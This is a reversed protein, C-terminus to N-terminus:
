FTGPAELIKFLSDEDPALFESVLATEALVRASISCRFRLISDDISDFSLNEYFTMSFDNEVAEAVPLLLTLKCSNMCRTNESDRGKSPDESKRSCM